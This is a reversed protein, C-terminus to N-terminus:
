RAYAREAFLRKSEALSMFLDEGAALREETERLVDDHWSPTQDAFHSSLSDCLYEFIQMREATNMQKIAEIIQPM